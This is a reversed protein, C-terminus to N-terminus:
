NLAILPFIIDRGEGGGGDLGCTTAERLLFRLNASAKELFPDAAGVIAPDSWTPSTRPPSLSPHLAAALSPPLRRALTVILQRRTHTETILGHSPRNHTEGALRPQGEKWTDHRIHSVNQPDSQSPPLSAFSPSLLAAPRHWLTEYLVLVSFSFPPPVRSHVRNKKSRDVSGSTADTQTLPKLLPCRASVMIVSCNAPVVRM